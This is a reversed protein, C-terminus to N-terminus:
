GLHKPHTLTTVPDKFSLPPPLSLSLSKFIGNSGKELPLSKLTGQDALLYFWDIRFSSLGPYESSSGISFSFSWFKPWTPAFLWSLPFSASAPFSQPCSSFPPSLPYILHNSPMVSGFSMVKLLSRSTTFSLSTQHAAIWPTM